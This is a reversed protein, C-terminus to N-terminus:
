RHHRCRGASASQDDSGRARARELAAVEADVCFLAELASARALDLIALDNDRSM